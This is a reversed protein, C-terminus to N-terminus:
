TAPQRGALSAALRALALARRTITKWERRKFARTLSLQVLHENLSDYRFLREAKEYQVQSACPM